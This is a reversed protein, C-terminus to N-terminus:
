PLGGPDPTSERAKSGADELQTDAFGLQEKISDFNAAKTAFSAGLGIMAVLLMTTLIRM